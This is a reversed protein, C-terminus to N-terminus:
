GIRALSAAIQGAIGANNELLARNAKLTNGGTLEKMKELLFPTMAKGRIGQADALQM